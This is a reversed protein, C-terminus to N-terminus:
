IFSGSGNGSGTSGAGRGSGSGAGNCNDGFRSFFSVTDVGGRAATDSKPSTFDGSPNSLDRLTCAWFSFASLGALPWLFAYCVVM